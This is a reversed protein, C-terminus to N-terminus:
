AIAREAQAIRGEHAVSAAAIKQPGDIKPAASPATTTPAVEPAKAAAEAQKKAISDAMGVFAPRDNILALVEKVSKNEKVLEQAMAQALKNRDGGNKAVEPVTAILQKVWFARQEAPAQLKKDDVAKLSAYANLVANEPVLMDGVMPLGMEAVFYAPSLMNNLTGISIGQGVTTMGTSLWRRGTQTKTLTSAQKYLPHEAGGLDAKLSDLAEHAMRNEKRTMLVTAGIGAVIGGAIVANFVPIRKASKAVAGLAGKLGNGSAASFNVASAEAKGAKAIFDLARVGQAKAANSIGETKLAEAVAKGAGEIDGKALVDMAGKMEPAATITAPKARTVFNKIRGFFGPIETTFAANANSLAKDQQGKLYGSYKGALGEVVGDAHKGVGTQAFRDLGKGVSSSVADSVGHTKAGFAAGKEALSEATKAASDAWGAASGGTERAIDSAAEMFKSPFQHLAGIETKRLATTPAQFATKLVVSTRKLGVKSAAGGLLGGGLMGGFMEFGFLKFANSQAGQLTAITKDEGTLQQKAAARAHSADLATGAASQVPRVGVGHAMGNRAAQPSIPPAFGEVM